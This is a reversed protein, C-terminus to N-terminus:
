ITVNRKKAQLFLPIDEESDSQNESENTGRKTNEIDCNVKKTRSPSGPVLRRKKDQILRLPVDEESEDLDLEIDAQAPTEINPLSSACPCPCPPSSPLPTLPSDPMSYSVNSPSVEEGLVVCRHIIGALDIWTPLDPFISPFIELLHPSQSSLPSSDRSVLVHDVDHPESEWHVLGFGLGEDQAPAPTFASETLNVTPDAPVIADVHPPAITLTDNRMAPDAQVATDRVDIQERECTDAENDNEAPNSQPQFGELTGSALSGDDESWLDDLDREEPEHKKPRGKRKRRLLNAIMKDVTKTKVKKKKNKRDKDRTHLTRTHTNSKFKPPANTASSVPLVSPVFPTFEAPSVTSQADLTPFDQLLNGFRKSLYLTSWKVSPYSIHMEALFDFPSQDPRKQQLHKLLLNLNADDDASWELLPSSTAKASTGLCEEGLAGPKKSSNNKILKTPAVSELPKADGAPQEQRFPGALADLLTQPTNVHNLELTLSSPTIDAEASAATLLKCSTEPQIQKPHPAELPKLLLQPSSIRQTSTSSDTRLTSPIESASQSPVLPATAVTVTVRSKKSTPVDRTQSSDAHHRKAVGTAPENNIKLMFPFPDITHGRKLCGDIWQESVLSKAQGWRYLESCDTGDGAKLLARATDIFHSPLIVFQAKTDSTIKGGAFEITRQLNNSNKAPLHFTLPQGHGDVFIPEIQMIQNGSTSISSMSAQNTRLLPGLDPLGDPPRQASAVHHQLHPATATVPPPPGMTSQASLTTAGQANPFQHITDLDHQLFHPMFGSPWQIGQSPVRPNQNTSLHVPTIPTIPTPPMITTARPRSLGGVQAPHTETAFGFPPPYITTDIPSLNAGSNRPALIPQHRASHLPHFSTWEHRKSREIISPPPPVLLNQAQSHISMNQQQTGLIPRVPPPNPQQAMFAQQGEGSYILPDMPLPTQKPPSLDYTGRIRYGGWDDGDGLVRGARFCAGVWERTVVVKRRKVVQGTRITEEFYRILLEPTWTGKSDYTDPDGWAFHNSLPAYHIPAHRTTSDSNSTSTSSPCAPSDPQYSYTPITPIIIISVHDLSPIPYIRGGSVQVTARLIEAFADPAGDKCKPEHLYFNLRRFLLGNHQQQMASFVTGPYNGIITRSSPNM